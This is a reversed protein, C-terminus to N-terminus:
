CRLNGFADARCIRPRPPPVEGPRPPTDGFANTRQAPVFGKDANEAGAPTQVRAVGSKRPRFPEIPDFGHTSRGSCAVQGLANTRCVEIAHTTRPAAVALLILILPITSRGM